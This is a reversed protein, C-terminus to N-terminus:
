KFQKSPLEIRALSALGSLGFSNDKQQSEGVPKLNYEVFYKKEVNHLHMSGFFVSITAFVIIYAKNRWLKLFLARIDIEDDSATQSYNKM